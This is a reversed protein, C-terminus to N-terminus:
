SKGIDPVVFKPKLRDGSEHAIDDECGNSCDDGVIPPYAVLRDRNVYLCSAWRAREETVHGSRTMAWM